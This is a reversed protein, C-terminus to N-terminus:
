MFLRHIVEKHGQARNDQYFHDLQGSSYGLELGIDRWPLGLHTAILEMHEKKVITTSTLVRNIEDTHPIADEAMEGKNNREEWCYNFNNVTGLHVRSSNM